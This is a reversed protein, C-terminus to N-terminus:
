QSDRARGNRVPKRRARRAAIEDVASSSTPKQAKIDTIRKLTRALEAALGQVERKSECNDIEDALRDRLAELTALEDGQTAVERLSM